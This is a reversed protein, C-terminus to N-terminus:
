FKCFKCFNCMIQCLLWGKPPRRIWNGQPGDGGGHRPHPALLWAVLCGLLWPVLSGLLLTVMCVFFIFVYIFIHGTARRAMGAVTGVLADWSETGSGFVM